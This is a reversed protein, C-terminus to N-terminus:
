EVPGAFTRVNCALMADVGQVWRKVVSIRREKKEKRGSKREKKGEAGEKKAFKTRQIHAQVNPKMQLFM